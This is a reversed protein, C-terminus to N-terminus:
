LWDPKPMSGGSKNVWAIDDDNWHIAVSYMKDKVMSLSFTNGHADTFWTPMLGKIFIDCYAMQWSGHIPLKLPETISITKYKLYSGWAIETQAKDGLLYHEGGYPKSAKPKHVLCYGNINPHAM